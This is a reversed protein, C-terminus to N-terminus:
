KKYQLPLTIQVTYVQKEWQYYYTGQYRQVIERLIQQGYGHGTQHKQKLSDAPNKVIIYLYQKDQQAIVEIWRKQESLQKTGRIANDLLNGFINCLHLPQVPIHAEVYVSIFLAINHQQCEKKKQSLIANIVPHACFIYDKTAELIYGTEKMIIKAHEINKANLSHKIKRLQQILDEQLNSLERKRELVSVFNKQDLQQLYEMKRLEQQVYIKNEDQYIVYLLIAEALLFGAPLVMSFIRREVGGSLGAYVIPQYFLAFAQLLFLLILSFKIKKNKQVYRQWLLLIIATLGYSCVLGLLLAWVGEITEYSLQQPLATGGVCVLLLAAMIAAIMVTAESLFLVFIQKGWSDVFFIWLYILTLFTALIVQYASPWMLKLKVYLFINVLLMYCLFAQWKKYRCELCYILIVGINMGNIFLLMYSIQYMAVGFECGTM